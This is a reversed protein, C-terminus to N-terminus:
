RLGIGELVKERTKKEEAVQAGMSVQVGEARSKRDHSIENIKKRKNYYMLLDTETIERNGTIGLLQKQEKDSALCLTTFEFFTTGEPNEIETKTEYDNADLFQKVVSSASDRGKAGQQLREFISSM